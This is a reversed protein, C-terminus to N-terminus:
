RFLRWWRWAKRVLLGVSVVLGLIVLFELADNM